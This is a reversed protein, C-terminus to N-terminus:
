RKDITGPNRDTLDPPMVTEAAPEYRNPHAPLGSVSNATEAQADSSFPADGWVPQLGGPGPNGDASPDDGRSIITDGALDSTTPYVANGFPTKLDGM